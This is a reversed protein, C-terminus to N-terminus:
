GWVSAQVGLGNKSGWGNNARAGWGSLGAGGGGANPGEAGASTPAAGGAGENSGGSATYGQSLPSPLPTTARKALAPNGQSSGSVSPRTGIPAVPGQGPKGSGPAGQRPPSGGPSSASTRSSQHPAGAGPADFMGGGSKSGSPPNSQPSSNSNARSREHPGASQSGQPHPLETSPQDTHGPPGGRGYEYALPSHGRLAGQPGPFGGSRPAGTEDTYGGGEPFQGEGGYLAGRQQAILKRRDDDPLGGPSLTRDPKTGGYSIEAHAALFLLSILLSEQRETKYGM